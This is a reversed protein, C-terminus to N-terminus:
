NVKWPYNKLDKKLDLNHKGTFHYVFFEMPFQKSPPNIHNWEDNLYIIDGKITKQACYNFLAQEHHSSGFGEPINSLVFDDEIPVNLEFLDFLFNCRSPSFCFLGANFFGDTYEALSVGGVKQNIMEYYKMQVNEVLERSYEQSYRKSVDKVCLFGSSEFFHFINPADNRILIDGDVYLIRDYQPFTKLITTKSFCPHLYKYPVDTVEIYDCKWRSCTDTLSERVNSVIYRNYNITILANM